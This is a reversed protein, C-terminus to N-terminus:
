ISLEAFSLSPSSSLIYYPLRPPAFRRDNGFRSRFTPRSEIPTLLRLRYGMPLRAAYAFSKPVHPALSLLPSECDAIPVQISQLKGLNGLLSPFTFYKTSISTTKTQFSTTSRYTSRNSCLSFTFQLSTYDLFSPSTHQSLAPILCRVSRSTVQSPLHRRYIGM